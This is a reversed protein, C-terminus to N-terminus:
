TCLQTRNYTVKKYVDFQGIIKGNFLVDISHSYEKIYDIQSTNIWLHTNRDEPHLLETCAVVDGLENCEAHTIITTIGNHQKHVCDKLVVRKQIFDNPTYM